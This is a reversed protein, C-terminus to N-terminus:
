MSRWPSASRTIVPPASVVLSGNVNMHKEFVGASEILLVHRGKESLESPVISPSPM